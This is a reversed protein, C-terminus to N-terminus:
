PGAGGGWRGCYSVLTRFLTHWTFHELEPKATDAAFQALIFRAGVPGSALAAMVGLFAARVDPLQM